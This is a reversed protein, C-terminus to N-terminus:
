RRDHGPRAAVSLRIATLSAPTADRVRGCTITADDGLM